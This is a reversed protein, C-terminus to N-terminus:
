RLLWVSYRHRYLHSHTLRGPRTGAAVWRSGLLVTGTESAAYISLYISPGHGRHSHSPRTLSPNWVRSPWGDVASQAGVSQGVWRVYDNLVYSLTEPAESATPDDIGHCTATRHIHAWCSSLSSVAM